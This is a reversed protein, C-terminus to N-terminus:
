WAGGSEARRLWAESADERASERLERLHLVYARKITFSARALDPVAVVNRGKCTTCTVDYVGSMYDERFDDGLEEMESATIGNGDISPNTHTGEGNCRSCVAMKAPLQHIVEEDGVYLTFTIFAASM